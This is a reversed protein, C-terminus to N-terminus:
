FKRRDSITAELDVNNHGYRDRLIRQLSEVEGPGAADYNAQHGLIRWLTWWEPDDAWPRKRNEIEALQEPTAMPIDDFFGLDKLHQNVEDVFTHQTEDKIPQESARLTINISGSGDKRASAESLWRLYRAVVVPLIGHDEFADKVGSVEARVYFVRKMDM